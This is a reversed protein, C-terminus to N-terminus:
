HGQHISVVLQAASLALQITSLIGAMGGVILVLWFTYWKPKDRTDTWLDWFSRPRQRLSHDQLERLRPGLLPIESSISYEDQKRLKNDFNTCSNPWVYGPLAQLEPDRSSKSCLVDLLPDMLPQGGAEAQRELKLFLERSARDQGFLMRYSLIVERRLRVWIETTREAPEYYKRM